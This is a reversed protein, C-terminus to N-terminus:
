VLENADFSHESKAAQAGKELWDPSEAEAGTHFTSGGSLSTTAMAQMIPSLRDDFPDEAMKSFSAAGDPTPTAPLQREVIDSPTAAYASTAVPAMDSTDDVAATFSISTIFSSHQDSTIASQTGDAHQSRMEPQSETSQLFLDRRKQLTERAASLLVSRQAPSLRQGEEGLLFTAVAEEDVQVSREQASSTKWESETRKWRRRWGQRRRGQYQQRGRGSWFASASYSSSSSPSSSTLPPSGTSAESMEENASEVVSSSDEASSLHTSVRSPIRDASSAGVLGNM